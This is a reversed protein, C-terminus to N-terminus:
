TRHLYVGDNHGRANGVHKQEPSGHQYGGNVCVVHWKVLASFVCVCVCVVVCVALEETIVVTAVDM